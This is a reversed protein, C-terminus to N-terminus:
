ESWCHKSADWHPSFSNGSEKFLGHAVQINIDPNFLWKENIKHWSQMVQFLGRASSTSNKAKPNLGSECFAVKVALDGHEGFTARIKDEITEPIKYETVVEVKHETISIVPKKISAQYEEDWKNIQAEALNHFGMYAIILLLVVSWIRYADYKWTEVTKRQYM